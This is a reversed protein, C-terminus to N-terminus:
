AGHVRMAQTSERSHLEQELRKGKLVVTVPFNPTMFGFVEVYSWMAGCVEM